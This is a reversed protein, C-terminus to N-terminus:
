CFPFESNVFEIEFVAVVEGGVDFLEMGGEALDQDTVVGFAISGMMLPVSTATAIARAIRAVETEM